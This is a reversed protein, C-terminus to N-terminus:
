RDIAARTSPGRDCYDGLFVIDAQALRETGMHLELQELLENLKDPNGHVDAICVVEDVVDEGSETQVFPPPVFPALQPAAAEENQPATLRKGAATSDGGDVSRKATTHQQPRLPEPPESDRMSQDGTVLCSVPAVGVESSIRELDCSLEHCVASILTGEALALERLQRVDRLHDYQEKPVQNAALYRKLWMFKNADSSRDTGGRSIVRM